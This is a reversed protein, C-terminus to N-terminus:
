LTVRTGLGGTKDCISVLGKRADTAGVLNDFRLPERASTNVVSAALPLIGRFQRWKPLRPRFSSMQESVSM